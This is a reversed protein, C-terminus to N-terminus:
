MAGRLTRAGVVARRFRQWDGKLEALLSEVASRSGIRLPFGGRTRGLLYHTEPGYGRELHTERFSEHTTVLPGIHVPGPWEGPAGEGPRESWLEGTHFSFALVHDGEETEIDYPFRVVRVVYGDSPDSWIDEEHVVTMRAEKGWPANPIRRM